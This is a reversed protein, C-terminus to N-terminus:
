IGRDMLKKPGRLLRPRAKRIMARSAEEIPRAIRGLTAAAEEEPPEPPGLVRGPVVKTEVGGVPALPGSSMVWIAM